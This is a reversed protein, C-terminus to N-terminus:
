ETIIKIEFETPAGLLPILQVHEGAYYFDIEGNDKYSIKESMTTETKGNDLPLGFHTDCATCEDQFEELTAWKWGTITKTEM